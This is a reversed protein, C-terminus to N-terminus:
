CDQQILVCRSNLCSFGSCPSLSRPCDSDATCAGYVTQDVLNWLLCNADTHAANAVWETCVRNTTVTQPMNGFNNYIEGIVPYIDATVLDGEHGDAITNNEFDFDTEPNFIGRQTVVGDTGTTEVVSGNTFNAGTADIKNQKTAVAADVYGRSTVTSTTDALVSNIAIISAIAGFTLIPIRMDRGKRAQKICM